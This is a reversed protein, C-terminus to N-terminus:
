ILWLVNVSVEGLYRKKGGSGGRGCKALKPLSRTAQKNGSSKWPVFVKFEEHFCNLLFGGPFYDDVNSSGKYTKPVLNSARCVYKWSQGASQLHNEQPGWKLSSSVPRFLTPRKGLTLSLSSNMVIFCFVETYGPLWSFPCSLSSKDAAWAM